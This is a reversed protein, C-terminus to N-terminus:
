VEQASAGAILARITREHPALAQLLDRCQRLRDADRFLQEYAWELGHTQGNGRPKAEIAEIATLASRDRTMAGELALVLLAFRDVESAVDRRVFESAEIAAIAAVPSRAPPPTLPVEAFADCDSRMSESVGFPLLARAFRLCNEIM